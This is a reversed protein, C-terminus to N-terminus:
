VFSWHISVWGDTICLVMMPLVPKNDPTRFVNGTPLQDTFPKLVKNHLQTGIPTYGTYPVAQVAAAIEDVSNMKNWTPQTAANIFRLNIVGNRFPMIITALRRAFSVQTQIRNGQTMSLSDDPSPM